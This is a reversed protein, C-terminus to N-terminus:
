KKLIAFKTKGITITERYKLVGNYSIELIEKAQTINTLKLENTLFKLTNIQTEKNSNLLYDYFDYLNLKQVENNEINNEKENM